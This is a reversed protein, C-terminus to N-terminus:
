ARSFVGLKFGGLNCLFSLVNLLHAEFIFFDYHLACIDKLETLIQLKTM